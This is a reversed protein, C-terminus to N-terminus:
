LKRCFNEGNKNQGKDYEIIDSYAVYDKLKTEVVKRIKWIVNKSKGPTFAIKTGPDVNKYDGSGGNKYCFNICGVGGDYNNAFIKLKNYDQYSVKLGNVIIDWYLKRNNIGRFFFISISKNKIIPLQIGKIKCKKRVIPFIGLHGLNNLNVLNKQDKNECTDEAEALPLFVEEKTQHIFFMVGEESLRISLTDNPIAIRINKSEADYYLSSDATHFYKFKNNEFKITYDLWYACSLYRDADHCVQGEIQAKPSFYCLFIIAFLIPRKM